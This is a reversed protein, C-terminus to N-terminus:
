YINDYNRGIIMMPLVIPATITNFFVETDTLDRLKYGRAEMCSTLIARDYHAYKNVGQINNTQKEPVEESGPEVLQAQQRCHELNNSRYLEKSLDNADVITWNQAKFSSVGCSCCISALIILFFLKKLYNM